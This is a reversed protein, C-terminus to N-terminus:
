RGELRALSSQLWVQCREWQACQRAEDHASLSWSGEKMRQRCRGLVLEEADQGGKHM